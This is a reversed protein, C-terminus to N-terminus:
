IHILSLSLTMSGGPKKVEIRGANWQVGKTSVIEYNMSKIAELQENIPAEGLSESDALIVSQLMLVQKELGNLEETQTESVSQRYTYGLPLAYKNEYIQYESNESWVTPVYGFVVSPDSQYIHILSLM